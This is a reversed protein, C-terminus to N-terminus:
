RSESREDAIPQGPWFPWEEFHCWAEEYAAVWSDVAERSPDARDSEREMGRFGLGAVVRLGCAPARVRRLMLGSTLFTRLRRANGSSIAIAASSQAPRAPASIVWFPM